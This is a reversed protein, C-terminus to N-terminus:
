HNWQHGEPTGGICRVQKCHPLPNRRRSGHTPQCLASEHFHTHGHGGANAGHGVNHTSHMVASGHQDSQCQRYRQGVRPCGHVGQVAACHDEPKRRGSNRTHRCMRIHSSRNRGSGAPILLALGVPINQGDSLNNLSVIAAITTGYREALASLTEDAQIVHRIQSQAQVTRAPLLGAALGLGLM